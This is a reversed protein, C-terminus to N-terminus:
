GVRNKGRALSLKKSLNKAAKISETSLKKGARLVDPKQSLGRHIKWFRQFHGLRTELVPKPIKKACRTQRL